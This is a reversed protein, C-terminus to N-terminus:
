RTAKLDGTDGATRMLGWLVARFIQATGDSGTSYENTQGSCSIEM